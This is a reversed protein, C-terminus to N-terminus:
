QDQAGCPAPNIEAKTIAFKCSEPGFVEMHIAACPSVAVPIPATDIIHLHTLPEPTGLVSRLPCGALAPAVLAVLAALGRM